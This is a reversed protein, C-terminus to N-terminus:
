PEFSAKNHLSLANVPTLRDILHGVGAHGRLPVFGIGIQQPPQPHITGVLDPVGVDGVDRHPAPEKIQHRDHVPLARPAPM